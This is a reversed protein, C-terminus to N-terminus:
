VFLIAKIIQRQGWFQGYEKYTDLNINFYVPFFIFAAEAEASAPTKNFLFHQSHCSNANLLMVFHM